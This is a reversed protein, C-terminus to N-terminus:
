SIASYFYNPGCSDEVIIKCVEDKLNWGKQVDTLVLDVPTSEYIM